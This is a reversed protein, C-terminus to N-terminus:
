VYDPLLPINVPIITGVGILTRLILYSPYITHFVPILSICVGAVVLGIVLPIKRGFTDTIIGIGMQLAIVWAEAFFGIYGTNAGVEQKTLNYYLPDELIFTVFGYIM